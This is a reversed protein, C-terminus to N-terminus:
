KGDGTAESAVPKVRIDRYIVRGAIKRKPFGMRGFRTEFSRQSYETLKRDHCFAVFAPYFMNAPTMVGTAAVVGERAFLAVPDIDAGADIQPADELEPVWPLGIMRWLALAADKGKNRRAEAVLRVAQGFDPHGPMIVRMPKDDDQPLTHDDHGQREGGLFHAYLAAHCERKYRLVKGRIAADKIRRDDIGFLFGPILALPLCTTDQAGGPSPINMIFMGESLIADRKIRLLQSAWEIGINDCIPKVAIPHAPDIAEGWLTDEYFPVPVLNSM